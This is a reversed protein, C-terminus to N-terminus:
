NKHKQKRTYVKKSKFTRAYNLRKGHNLIEEERSASKVANFRERLQSTLKM